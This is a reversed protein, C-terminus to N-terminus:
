FMAEMLGIRQAHPPSGDEAGYWVRVKNRDLLLQSPHVSHNRGPGATGFSGASPPTLLPQSSVPRWHIGDSSTAAFTAWSRDLSKNYLMFYRGKDHYVSPGLQEKGALGVISRGSNGKTWHIGDSSTALGLSHRGDYAGYWMVFQAGIRLVHMGTAQISDIAGPAGIDLVPTGDGHRKWHVGDRSTALCIREVRVHPPSLGLDQADGGDIAGYWMMFEEGVRLVYPHALGKSDASGPPGLDLVPEGDNALNWVLGDGSVALGIRETYGYPVEPDDAPEAGVFWMRYLEGDFDVTPGWVYSRHWSAPPGVGLAAGQDATGPVRKFNANALADISANPPADVFRLLTAGEAPMKALAEELKHRAAAAETSVDKVPRKELVDSEVDYLRGDGYLKWRQDRVFRVPRTREPRPCYYCYMWERPTGKEGRLQPLFSRGDLGAPVSLGAAELTTPLFDSFDVLDNCVRGAPVVGPWLALLPVRTGDDTTQGKGGAITRGHLTSSLRRHTGNDSCFLILTEEAIKLEETAAVIRGVLRDMYTVMAEFNRQQAKATREKAQPPSDPTPVFPSHVLIMPYYIFFRESRHERMFDILYDTAVAPGYEGKSFQHNEGDVYLLPTDYREGLRDVQWLCIREFGAEEPWSGRARFSEAYHEAGLLQWKGAIATRYGGARFYQGITRQDRNLVSFASYNRANSLGTMLKIRSPTCLPQSYCHTFRMGRSALRDINPTRYQQSGYCGFCESGVDDAMILIVNAPAPKTPEDGAHVVSAFGMLLTALCTSRISNM